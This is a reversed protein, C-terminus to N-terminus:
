AATAAKEMLRMRKRNLAKYEDSGYPVEGSTLKKLIENAQLGAEEATLQPTPDNPQHAGQPDQRFKTSINALLVVLEPTLHEVPLDAHAFEEILATAAQV